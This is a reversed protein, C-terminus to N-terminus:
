LIITKKKSKEIIISFFREWTHTLTPKNNEFYGDEFNEYYYSFEIYKKFFLILIDAKIWFISGACFSIHNNKKLILNNNHVLRFQKYGIQLWHFLAYSKLKEKDNRLDNHCYIKNYPYNLM